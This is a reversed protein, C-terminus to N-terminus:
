KEFRQTVTGPRKLPSSPAKVQLPSPRIDASTQSFTQGRVFSFLDKSFSGSGGSLVIVLISLASHPCTPHTPLQWM